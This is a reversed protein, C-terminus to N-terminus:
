ANIDELPTMYLVTKYAQLLTDKCFGIQNKAATQYQSIQQRLANERKVVQKFTQELQEYQAAKMMYGERFANLYKQQEEVPLHYIEEVTLNLDLGSVPNYNQLETEDVSETPEPKQTKAM